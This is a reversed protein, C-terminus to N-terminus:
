EEPAEELAKFKDRIENSRTIIPKAYQAMVSTEDIVLNECSYGSEKLSNLETQTIEQIKKFASDMMTSLEADGWIKTPEPADELMVGMGCIASVSAAEQIQNCYAKKAMLVGCQPLIGELSQATYGGPPMSSTQALGPLPSLAILLSIVLNSKKM